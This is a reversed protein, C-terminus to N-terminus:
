TGTAATVTTSVGSLALSRPPVAMRAPLGAGAIRLGSRRSGIRGQPRFLYEIQFPVGAGEDRAKSRMVTDYRSTFNDADLMQSFSRGVPLEAIECGVVDASNASWSISDTEIVWHYAAEGASIVARGIEELERHAVVQSPKEVAHPPM